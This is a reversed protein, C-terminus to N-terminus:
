TAWGRLEALVLSDIKRFYDFQTKEEQLDLAPRLPLVREPLDAPLEPGVSCLLIASPYNEHLQDLIDSTPVQGLNKPIIQIVIQGDFEKVFERPDEYARSLDRFPELIAEDIQEWAWDQPGVTILMYNESSERQSKDKEHRGRAKPWARACYAQGSFRGVRNGNLAVAKRETAADRLRAAAEADVWLGQVLGYLRDAQRGGLLHKLLDIVDYLRLLALQPERLVFRAFASAFDFPPRATPKRGGPLHDWADKLAQPKVNHELIDRIWRQLDDFPTTQNTEPGGLVTHVATAVGAATKCQRQLQVDTVRLVRYLQNADIDQPEIGGMLVGILKFTPDIRARWCLIAAEKQVWASDLADQSFLIVAAHCEAMWENLHLDWDAGVPIDGSQDVLTHYGKGKLAACIEKLRLRDPESRSSHSVFVKQKV